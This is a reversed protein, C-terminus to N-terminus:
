HDIRDGILPSLLIPVRKAFYDVPDRRPSVDGWSTPCLPSVKHFRLDYITVTMVSITVIKFYCLIRLVLFWLNGYRILNASWLFVTIRSVLMIFFKCLISDFMATGKKANLTNLQWSSPQYWVSVDHWVHNNWPHLLIFCFFDLM